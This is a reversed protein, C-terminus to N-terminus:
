LSLFAAVTEASVLYVTDDDNLTAYYSGDERLLGLCLTLESETGVTNLYQIEIMASPSDLGCLPAADPSPDYNFCKIFAFEALAAEIDAIGDFAKAGISWGAERKALRLTKSMEGNKQVTIGTMNEDTLEPLTPLVAMDYVPIDLLAVLDNPVLYVEAGDNVNMYWTGDERQKGIHLTHPVEGATFSLYRGANDLGYESLEGAGEIPTMDMGLQDLASLVTEIYSGDLPFAENDVWKWTDEVKHFRCTVSSNDYELYTIDAATTQQGNPLVGGAAADAMDEDQAASGCAAAFLALLLLALLLLMRRKM